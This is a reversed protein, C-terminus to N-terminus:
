LAPKAYYPFFEHPGLWRGEAISRRTQRSKRGEGIVDVIQAARAPDDQAFILAVESLIIPRRWSNMYECARLLPGLVSERLEPESYVAEFLLLLAHARRVPNPETQIKELLEHVVTGLRRDRKVVMVRVPWAAVSVIRNPEKLAYAAELSEGIIKKVEGSDETQWAVQALDQCRRWADHPRRALDLAVSPKAPAKKDARSRKPVKKQQSPTARM